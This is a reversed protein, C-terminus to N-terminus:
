SIYLIIKAKFVQGESIVEVYNSPFIGSKGSPATGRWWGEDFKDINTIIDDPDFTIEDEGETLLLSYVSIVLIKVVSSFM